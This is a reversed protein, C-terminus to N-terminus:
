LTIQSYREGNLVDLMHSLPTVGKLKEIDCSMIAKFDSASEGSVLIAGIDDKTVPQGNSARVNWYVLVPMDYGARRYASKVAEHNTFSRGGVGSNFQMDSVIAIIKPMDEQPVNSNVATSLILNFAAELNTSAEWDHTDINKIQEHLTKGKLTHWHPKSSFNMWHGKFVGKSKEAAYLALAVATELPAGSMSGSTDAMVVLSGESMYNPLQLWQAEITGDEKRWAERVLAVPTLTSANIKKEGRKAAEVYSTYREQDHRKFAKRYIRSAQSPVREYDIERWENQSMQTEVIKIRNRLSSLAKRYERPTMDLKEAFYRAMGRSERSSANESPMWKALLSIPQGSDFARLDAWFQKIIVDETESTLFEFLDDWRGYEPVLHVLKKFIRPEYSTLLWRMAERFNRREGNGGRIDRAHFLARVALLADENLASRFMKVFEIPNGRLAGSKSFFDLVANFSSANTLAGNETLTVRPKRPAPAQFSQVLKNPM